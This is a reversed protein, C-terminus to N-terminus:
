KDLHLSIENADEMSCIICRIAPAISFRPTLSDFECIFAWVHALVTARYIDMSTAKPPSYKAPMSICLVGANLSANRPGGSGTEILLTYSAILEINSMLYQIQYM